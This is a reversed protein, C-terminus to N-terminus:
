LTASLSVALSRIKDEWGNELPGKMGKVELSLSDTMPIFGASRLSENMIGETKKWRPKEEPNPLHTVVLAYKGGSRSLKGVFKRMKGPPKGAHVSTSFVYLDSEPIQDLNIDSISYISVDHGEELLFGRLREMAM